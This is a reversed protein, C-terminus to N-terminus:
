VKLRSRDNALIYPSSLFAVLTDLFLTEVVTLLGHSVNADTPKNRLRCRAPSRIEVVTLLGHSVDVTNRSANCPASVGRNVPFWGNEVTAEFLDDLTRM